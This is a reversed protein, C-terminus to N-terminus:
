KTAALWGSPRPNKSSSTSSPPTTPLLMQSYRERLILHPVLPVIEKQLVYALVKPAILTAATVQSLYNSDVILTNRANDLLTLSVTFAGNTYKEFVSTNAWHTKHGAPISDQAQM